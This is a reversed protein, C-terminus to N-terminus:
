WAGKEQQLLFDASQENRFLSSSSDRLFALYMNLKVAHGVSKDGFKFWLFVTYNRTRIHTVLWPILKKDFPWLVYLPDFIGKM